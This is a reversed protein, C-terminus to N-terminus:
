ESKKDRDGHPLLNVKLTAQHSLTRMNSGRFLGNFDTVPPAGVSSEISAVEPLTLLNEEVTVTTARTKSVGADAPLDVYVYFQEKDAKPLMRFHVLGVFPFSFTILVFALVSVLITNQLKRSHLIKEILNKKMVM